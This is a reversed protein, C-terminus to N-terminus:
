RASELREQCGVCRIAEPQSQLRSLPIPKHCDVCIGYGASGIALLANRVALLEDDDIAAVGAAVEDDDSRQATDEDDQERGDRGPMGPRATAAVAQAAQLSSLRTELASRLRGRDADTLHTPASM